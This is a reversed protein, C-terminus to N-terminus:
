NWSKVGILHSNGRKETLRGKVKPADRFVQGGKLLDPRKKQFFIKAKNRDLLFIGEFQIEFIRNSLKHNM